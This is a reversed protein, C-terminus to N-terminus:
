RPGEFRALFTELFRYLAPADFDEENTRLDELVAQAQKRIECWCGDPKGSRVRSCEWCMEPPRPTM